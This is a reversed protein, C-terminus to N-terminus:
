GDGLAETPRPLAITPVGAEALVARTKDWTRSLARNIADRLAEDGPRVGIALSAVMPLFPIDIEPRVPAITLGENKQAFSGAIPGWVIAVDVSGDEVAEAIAPRAGVMRGPFHVLNEVIGRNALAVSPPVPKRSAGPVGIRLDKLVADDLSAVEFQADEPYLFVYGTRYYAHSTMLGHQGELAGMVMDCVGAQVFMLRTRARRDPLTVVRLEAGLDAAVIAAVADDFGEAAANSFPLNDPEVCLRLEWAGASGPCAASVFLAAALAAAGSRHSTM